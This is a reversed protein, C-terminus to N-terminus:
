QRGGCIMVMRMTWKWCKRLPSLFKYEMSTLRSGINSKLKSIIRSKKELTRPVWWALVPEDALDNKIAFEALEVPFSDKVDKLKNWTTSGDKWQIQVQNGKTTERRRNM